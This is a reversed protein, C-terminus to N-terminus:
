EDNVGRNPRQKEHWAYASAIDDEAVRKFFHGVFLRVQQNQAASLTPQLVALVSDVAIDAPVLKANM